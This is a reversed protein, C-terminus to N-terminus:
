LAPFMLVTTIVAEWGDNNSLIQPGISSIAFPSKELAASSSSASAEDIKEEADAASGVPPPAVVDIETVLAGALPPVGAVMPAVISEVVGDTVIPPEFTLIMVGECPEGKATTAVVPAPAGEEIM